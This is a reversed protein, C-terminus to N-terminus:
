IHILSLYQVQYNTTPNPARTPHLSILRRKLHLDENIINASPVGTTATGEVPLNVGARRAFSVNTSLSPDMGPFEVGLIPPLDQLGDNQSITSNGRSSNGYAWNPTGM